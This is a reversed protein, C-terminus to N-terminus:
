SVCVVAGMYASVALRYGDLLTAPTPTVSINFTATEGVDLTMSTSPDSQSVLNSESLIKVELLTEGVRYIAVAVYIPPEASLSDPLPIQTDGTNTLNFVVYSEGFSVIEVDCGYRSSYLRSLHSIGSGSYELSVVAIYIAISILSFLAISLIAFAIPYSLGM